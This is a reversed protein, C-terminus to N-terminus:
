KSFYGRPIKFGIDTRIIHSSSPRIAYNDVSYLDFVANDESGKPPEIAYPSLKVFETKM